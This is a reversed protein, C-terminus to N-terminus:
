ETTNKDPDAKSINVIASVKDIAIRYQGINTNGTIDSSHILHELITGDRLTITGMPRTDSGSKRVAVKSIKTWPIQLWYSLSDARLCLDESLKGNSILRANSLEIQEGNNCSIKLALKSEIPKEATVHQAAMFEELRAASAAHQQDAKEALHNEASKVANDLAIFSQNMTAMLDGRNTAFALESLEKQIILFGIILGISLILAAMNKM